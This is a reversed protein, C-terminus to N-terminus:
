FSCNAALPAAKRRAAQGGGKSMRGSRVNWNRRIRGASSAMSVHAGSWVVFRLLFVLFLGGGLVPGKKVSVFLLHAALESVESDSQTFAPPDVHFRPPLPLGCCSAAAIHPGDSTSCVSRCAAASRLVQERRRLLPDCTRTRGPADGRPRKPLPIEAMAAASSCTPSLAQFRKPLAVAGPRTTPSGDLRGFRGEADRTRVISEKHTGARM